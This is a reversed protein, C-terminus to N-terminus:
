QAVPLTAAVANGVFKSQTYQRVSAFYDLFAPKARIV